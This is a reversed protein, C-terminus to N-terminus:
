AADACRRIRDRLQGGRLSHRVKGGKPKILARRTLYRQSLGRGPVISGFRPLFAVVYRGAVFLVTAGGGVATKSLGYTANREGSFGKLSQRGPLELILRHKRPNDDDDSARKDEGRNPQIRANLKGLQISLM